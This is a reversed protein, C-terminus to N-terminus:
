ALDRRMAVRNRLGARQEAALHERLRVDCDEAPLVRYGLREYFPRNWPVAAFTTLTLAVFDLQAAHSAARELLARGLGSGGHEPLVSVEVVHLADGCDEAMLFGALEGSPALAVWLLGAALAQQLAGQGQTAGRQKPPLDDASFREAARSEIAALLPLDDQGANRIPSPNM